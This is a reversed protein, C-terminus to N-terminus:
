QLGFSFFFLGAFIKLSFSSIIIDRIFSFSLSNSVMTSKIRSLGLVVDDELFLEVGGGGVVVFEVVLGSSGEVPGLVGAVVVEEVEVVCFFVM